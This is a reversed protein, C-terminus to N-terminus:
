LYLASCPSSEEVEGTKWAARTRLGCGQKWKGNCSSVKDLIGMAPHPLSSSHHLTESFVSFSLRENSRKMLLSTPLSPYPLSPSLCLHLSSAPAAFVGWSPRKPSVLSSNNITFKCMLSLKRGRIIESSCASFLIHRSSMHVIPCVANPLRCVHSITVSMWTDNHAKLRKVVPFHWGINQKNGARRLIVLNQDKHHSLDVPLEGPLRNFLLLRCLVCVCVCVYGSVCVPLCIGEAAGGIPRYALCVVVSM